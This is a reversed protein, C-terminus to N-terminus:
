CGKVGDFRGPWKWWYDRCGNAPFTRCPFDSHNALVVKGNRSSACVNCVTLYDTNGDDDLSYSWRCAAKDIAGEDNPLPLFNQLEGSSPTEIEHDSQEMQTDSDDVDSEACATFANAFLLAIGLKIKLTM